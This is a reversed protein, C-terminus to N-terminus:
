VNNIAELEKELKEILKVYKEHEKFGIREREIEEFKEILKEHDEDNLFNEGMPYLINDEKQIHQTLLNIYSLANTIIGNIAAEDGNYYRKVFESLNKVYARGEEHEALMVGIPGGEKPIGKAELTPFLVEEEKGHHCKDAFFKIFDLLNNFVEPSVKNKKLRNCALELIKLAREIIRHEDKLVKTASLISVEM